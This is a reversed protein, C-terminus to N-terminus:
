PIINYNAKRFDKPTINYKKKFLRDFYYHNEFGIRDSIEGITLNSSILYECAQMLRLDNIYSVTSKGLFNHFLKTIYSTSIEFTDSLSTLTIPETYNKNIYLLIKQLTSNTPHKSNLANSVLILLERMINDLLLKENNNQWYNLVAARNIVDNIKYHINFQNHKIHIPIEVVSNYVSGYYNYSYGSNELEAFRILSKGINSSPTSDIVSETFHLFYYSCGDSELPQYVTKAPIVLVDGESVTYIDDAIRMNFSGKTVYLFLNSIISQRNQKQKKQAHWFGSTHSCKGFMKVNVTKDLDIIM